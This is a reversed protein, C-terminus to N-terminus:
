TIDTGRVVPTCRNGNAEIHALLAAKTRFHYAWGTWVTGDTWHIDARWPRSPFFGDKYYVTRAVTPQTATM